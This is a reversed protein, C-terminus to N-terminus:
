SVDIYDEKHADFYYKCITYVAELVSKLEPKLGDLEAPDILTYMSSLIRTYTWNQGIYNILESYDSPILNDKEKSIEEEIEPRITKEVQNIIFELTAEALKTTKENTM